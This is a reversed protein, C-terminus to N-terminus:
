LKVEKGQLALQGSRGPVEGYIVECVPLNPPLARFIAETPVLEYGQAKWGELLREFMPQLKGGELEAHATFVHDGANKRPATLSLLHQAVDGHLGILEDLTPLTTPIQPCGVLEGNWAPLFPQRGRTDSAYAFTEQFRAAHANTQWGAAGWTRPPEGFVESFRTCALVMERETWEGDKGAVFDQWRVHDWCHIGVEFGDDRTSRMIGACRRGIDPGPLLTGYLLTRVGYHELVSTRSVKSFFGPRLVRRLARGTHDPGLSFLFTAGARHKKLLEVLRPVGDRTGRFTDVDIKLGLKM